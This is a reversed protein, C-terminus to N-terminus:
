TSEFLICYPIGTILYLVSVTFFLWFCNSVFCICYLFLAPVICFYHLFLASVTCFCHLFLASVTYFCCLFMVSVTCSCYLFLASVTCFCHLFLVFVTCFCHLFLVSVTCFCHLFLASVTCQVSVSPILFIESCYPGERGGYIWCTGVFQFYVQLIEWNLTKLLLSTLDPYTNM